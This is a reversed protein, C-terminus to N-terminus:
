PAASAFAAIHQHLREAHTAVLGHAPPAALAVSAAAISGILVRRRM